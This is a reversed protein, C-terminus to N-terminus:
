ATSKPKKFWFHDRKQTADYSFGCMEWGAEQMIKVEELSEAVWCSILVHDWYQTM